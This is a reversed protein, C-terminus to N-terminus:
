RTSSRTLLALERLQRIRSRPLHLRWTKAAVARGAPAIDAVFLDQQHLRDMAEGLSGAEVVSCVERGTKDFARFELKM